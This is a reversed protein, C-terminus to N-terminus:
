VGAFLKNLLMVVAIMLAAVGIIGLACKGAILLAVLFNGSDM